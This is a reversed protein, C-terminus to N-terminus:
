ALGWLKLQVDFTKRVSVLLLKKWTCEKIGVYCCCSGCRRKAKHYAALCRELFTEDESTKPEQALVTETCHVNM